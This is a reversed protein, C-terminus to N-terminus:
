TYEIHHAHTYTYKIESSIHLRITPVKLEICLEPRQMPNADTEDTEYKHIIMFITM